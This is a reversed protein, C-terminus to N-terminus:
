SEGRVPAGSLTAEIEARTAVSQLGPKRVVLSSAAAAFRVTEALDGTEKWRVLFATALVDGAGTPDVEEAPVAPTHFAGGDDFVTFGGAGRTLVVM